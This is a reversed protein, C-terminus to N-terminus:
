AEEIRRPDHIPVDAPRFRDFASLVEEPLLGLDRQPSIRLAAPTSTATGDRLVLHIEDRDPFAKQWFAPRVSIARVSAWSHSSRGVSIRRGDIELSCPERRAAVISSAAFAALTIALIATQFSLTGPRGNIMVDGLGAALMPPALLLATGCFFAIRLRGYPKGSIRMRTETAVVIARRPGRLVSPWRSSLSRVLIAGLALGIVVLAVAVREFPEIWQGHRLSRWDSALSSVLYHGMAGAAVVGVGVNRILRLLGIRRRRYAKRM